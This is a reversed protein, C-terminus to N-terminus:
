TTLAEAAGGSRANDHPARILYSRGGYLVKAGPLPADVLWRDVLALFELVWGGGAPPQLRVTHGAGELIATPFLPAAYQLLLNSCGEDPAVVDIPHISSGSWANLPASRGDVDHFKLASAGTM